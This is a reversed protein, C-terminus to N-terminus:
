WLTISVTSFTVGALATNSESSRASAQRASTLCALRPRDILMLLHLARLLGGLVTSDMTVADFVREPEAIRMVVQGVALHELQRRHAAVAHNREVERALHEVHHAFAAAGGFLRNRRQSTEARATDVIRRAGFAQQFVRAVVRRSLLATSARATPFKEM